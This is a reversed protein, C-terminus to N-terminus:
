FNVPLKFTLQKEPIGSPNDSLLVIFGSKGVSTFEVTTIFDISKGSSWSGSEVEKAIGRGIIKDNTDRLEVPFQGEFMWGSPVVGKIIVPSTIRANERPTSITPSNSIDIFKFTSLIQDLIQSSSNEGILQVFRGNSKTIFIYKDSGYPNEHCLQGEIEGVKHPQCNGYLNWSVWESLSLEHAKANDVRYQYNKAHILLNALIKDNKETLVLNFEPDSNLPTNITISVEQPHRFSFLQNSYGPWMKTPDASALPTPTPSPTLKELTLQRVQLFLYISIVSVISLLILSIYLFFPFKKKPPILNRVSESPLNPVLPDPTAVSPSPDTPVINESESM